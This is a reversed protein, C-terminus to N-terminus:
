IGVRPSVAGTFGAICGRARCRTLLTGSWQGYGSAATTATTATGSIAVVFYRRRRGRGIHTVRLENHHDGFLLDTQDSKGCLLAGVLGGDSLCREGDPSVHNVDFTCTNDWIYAKQKVKKEFSQPLQIAQITRQSQLPLLVETELQRKLFNEWKFNFEKNSNM